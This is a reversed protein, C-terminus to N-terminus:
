WQRIGIRTANMAASHSGQTFVPPRPSTTSASARERALTGPAVSPMTSPAGGASGTRPVGRSSRGQHAAGRVLGANGRRPPRVRVDDVDLCVAKSQSEDVM